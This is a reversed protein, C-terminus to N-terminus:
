ANHDGRAAPHDPGLVGALRQRSEEDRRILEAHLADKGIRYVHHAIADLVAPSARLLIRNDSRQYYFDVGIQDLKDFFDGATM